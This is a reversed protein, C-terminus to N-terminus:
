VVVLSCAVRFQVAASHQRATHVCAPQSSSAASPWMQTCCVACSESCLQSQRQRLCGFPGQCALVISIVPSHTSLLLMVKANVSSNVSYNCYLATSATKKHVQSHHLAALTLKCTQAGRAAIATVTAACSSHCMHMTSASRLLGMLSCACTYESDHLARPVAVTCFSVFHHYDYTTQV